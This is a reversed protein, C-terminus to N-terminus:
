DEFDLNNIANKSLWPALVEFLERVKEPQDDFYIYNINFKNPHELIAKQLDKSNMKNIARIMQRTQTNDGLTNKLATKLNTKYQNSAKNLYDKSAYNKARKYADMFAEKSKYNNLGMKVRSPKFLPTKRLESNHLTQELVKFDPNNKTIYDRKVNARKAYKIFDKYTEKPIVFNDTGIFKSTQKLKKAM